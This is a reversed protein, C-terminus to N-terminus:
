TGCVGLSLLNLAHSAPIGKAWGKWVFRSREMNVKTLPRMVASYNLSSIKTAHKSEEWRWISYKLTELYGRHVMKVALNDSKSLVRRQPQSEDKYFLCVFLDLWPVMEGTKNCRKCYNEFYAWQCEPSWILTCFKLFDINLKRGCLKRLGKAFLVM